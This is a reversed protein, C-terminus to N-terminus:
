VVNAAELEEWSRLRIYKRNQNPPDLVGVKFAQLQAKAHPSHVEDFDLSCDTGMASLIAVLTTQKSGNRWGEHNAVHPTMDYVVDNVVIWCDHRTAHAAVDALTYTPWM